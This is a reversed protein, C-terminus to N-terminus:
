IPPYYEPFSVISGVQIPKIHAVDKELGTDAQVLYACILLGFWLPANFRRLILGEMQFCSLMEDISGKLLFARLFPSLISNANMSFM